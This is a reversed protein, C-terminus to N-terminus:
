VIVMVSYTTLLVVSLPLFIYAAVECATYFKRPPVSVFGVERRERVASGAEETYAKRVRKLSDIHSYLAIALMLIGLALSVLSAGFALRSYLGAETTTHLSVLVGFLTASLFLVRQLWESQKENFLEMLEKSKRFADEYGMYDM